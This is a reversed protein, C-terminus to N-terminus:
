QPTISLHDEVLLQVFNGLNRALNLGTKEELKSANGVKVPQQRFLLDPDVEVYQRWDLDFYRFVHFIFEEVTYAFGSAIVFDDPENLQMISRMAEVYDPAFGWDVRSSLNGVQMKEKRGASIRIAGHIIKSTLYSIPRFRSEHNYLIGCSAYIDHKERFERCLWMGQAKTIGYMGIPEYPTLEDQMEGHNGSFILSSSAYFIRTEPSSDAISALFNLLGTVHIDQSHQFLDFQSLPSKAKESSTHFAALYYIEDPKVHKLFSRVSDVNLINIPASDTLGLTVRRGIGIVKYSRCTLNLRLLNGDQGQHGVIVATKSSTM